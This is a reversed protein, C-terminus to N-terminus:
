SYTVPLTPSFVPQSSIHEISAFRDTQTRFHRKSVRIAGISALPFFNQPGPCSFVDVRSTGRAKPCTGPATGASFESPGPIERALFIQRFFGTILHFWSSAHDGIQKQKKKNKKLSNSYCPSQLVRLVHLMGTSLGVSDWALCFRQMLMRMGPDCEDKRNSSLPCTVILCTSRAKEKYGGSDLL